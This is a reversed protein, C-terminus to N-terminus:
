VPRNLLDVFATPETEKQKIPLM